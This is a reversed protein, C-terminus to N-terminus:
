TLLYNTVISLFLEGNVPPFFVQASASGPCALPHPCPHLFVLTLIFLHSVVCLTVVFVVPWYRASDPGWSCFVWCTTNVCFHLSVSFSHLVPERQIVPPGGACGSIMAFCTISVSTWQTWTNIIMTCYYICAYLYM